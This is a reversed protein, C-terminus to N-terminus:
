LCIKHTQQFDDWSVDGTGDVGSSGYCGGDNLFGIDRCFRGDKYLIVGSSNNEVCKRQRNLCKRVYRNCKVGNGVYMVDDGIMLDNGNLLAKQIEFVSDKNGSCTLKKVRTTNDEFDCDGQKDKGGSRQYSAHPNDTNGTNGRTQM